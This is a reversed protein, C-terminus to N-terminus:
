GISYSVGLSDTLGIKSSRAKAAVLSTAQIKRFNMQSGAQAEIKNLKRVRGIMVM